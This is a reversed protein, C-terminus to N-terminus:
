SLSRSDKQMSGEKFVVTHSDYNDLPIIFTWAHNEVIGSEIDTHVMYPDFSDFVHIEGIYLDGFHERIKPELIDYVPKYIEHYYPFSYYVANLIPDAGEKQYNPNLYNNWATTNEVIFKDLFALEEDSCFNPIIKNDFNM